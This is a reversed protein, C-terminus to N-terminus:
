PLIDGSSTTGNSPDYLDKASNDVFDPGVSYAFPRGASDQAWLFPKVTFPDVPIASLYPKLDDM